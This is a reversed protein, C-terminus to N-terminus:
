GTESVPEELLQLQARECFDVHAQVGNPLTFMPDTHGFDFDVAIPIDYGETATLVIDKLTDRDSFGVSPHFRGAVLAAIRGFAGMHRLQTLFRDITSPSEEEDDEICLIVGDLDPFYRTSALALMTGLNGAIIPGTAVGDKLIRPGPHPEELRPRTDEIDWHLQEHISLHSPTLEIPLTSEMLVTHFCKRTYRHLGAAEGFQPMIAPGLFTVLGTVKHIALLLATIDSYGMLIKPNRAILDYDLYELLQNSNFGGITTIIARVEADSFMAHIDSVRDEITGATHGHRATAHEAVRVSFGMKELNEV